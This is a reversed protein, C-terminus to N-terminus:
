CRVEWSSLTVRVSVLTPRIPDKLAGADFTLHHGTVSFSDVYFGPWTMM